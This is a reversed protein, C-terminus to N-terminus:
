NGCVIANLAVVNTAPDIASATGVDYIIIEVYTTTQTPIQTFRYGVGGTGIYTTTVAFKADSFTDRFTIRVRGANISVGSVGKGNELTIGGVGDTSIQAWAQVGLHRFAGGHYYRPHGGGDPHFSNSVMFAGEEGTTPDANQGILKLSGFKPSSAKGQGVLGYGGNGNPASGRVGDGEGAAEGYVGGRNNDYGFGYVGYGKDPDAHNGAIGVVGAAVSESSISGASTRGTGLGLVGFAKGGANYPSGAKGQLGHGGAGSAGGDGGYARVGAGGDDSATAGDGGQAYQGEAGNGSTTPKGGEAYVGAGAGTATEGGYFGGGHGSGGGKGHVGLGNTTGGVGFVGANQTSTVGFTGSGSGKVGPATGYSRGEVGIGNPTGGVGLLGPGGDSGGAGDGGIGYSGPGGAGSTPADGGKGEVGPSATGTAPAGGYGHVGVGGNGKGRGIIATEDTAAVSAVDVELATESKMKDIDSGDFFRENFWKFWKGILNAKWNEWSSPHPDGVGWGADKEGSSPETINSSTDAWRPVSTPKTETNTTM